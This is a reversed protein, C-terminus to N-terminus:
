RVAIPFKARLISERHQRASADVDILRAAFVLQQHFRQFGLPEAGQLQGELLELLFQGGFSQESASRLRGRGRKGRRMPM